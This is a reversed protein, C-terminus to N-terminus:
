EKYRKYADECIRCSGLHAVEDETPEVMGQGLQLLRSPLMHMAVYEEWAANVEEDSIGLLEDLEDAM